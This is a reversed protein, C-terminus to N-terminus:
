APVPTESRSTQIAKSSKSRSSRNRAPAGLKATHAVRYRLEFRLIMAAFRV